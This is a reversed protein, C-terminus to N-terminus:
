YCILHVMKLLELEYNVRFNNEKEYYELDEIFQEQEMFNIIFVKEETKM